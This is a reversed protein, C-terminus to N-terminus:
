PLPSTRKASRGWETRGTAGSIDPSFRGMVIGVVYSIWRRALQEDDIYDPEEEMAEEGEAVPQALESEIAKRDQDSIAYLRISGAKLIKSSYIAKSSKAM